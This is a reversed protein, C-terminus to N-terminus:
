DEEDEGARAQERRLGRPGHEEQETGGDRDRRRPAEDQDEREEAGPQREAPQAGRERGRREEDDDVDEHEAVVERGPLEPGDQSAARDARISASSSSRRGRPRKRRRSRTR